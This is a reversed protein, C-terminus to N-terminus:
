AARNKKQSKFQQIIKKEESFMHLLDATASIKLEIYKKNNENSITWLEALNHALSHRLEPIKDFEAISEDIVLDQLADPMAIIKAEISKKSGPDALVWLMAISQVLNQKIEPIGAGENAMRYFKVREYLKQVDPLTSDKTVRELQEFDFIVGAKVAADFEDTNTIAREFGPVKRTLGEMIPSIDKLKTSGIVIINDTLGQPVRIGTFDQSIIPSKHLLLHIMKQQIHDESNHLERTFAWRLPTEINRNIMNVDAGLSLLDDTKQLNGALVSWHLATARLADKENVNAGHAILKKVLPINIHDGELGRYVPKKGWKDLQNVDANLALLLEVTEIDDQTVALHLLTQQDESRQENIHREIYASNTSANFFDRFGPDTKNSQLYTEYLQHLKNM